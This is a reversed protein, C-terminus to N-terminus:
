GPVAQRNRVEKITDQYRGEAVQLASTAADLEARSSSGNGSCSWAIAAGGHKMSCPVHSACWHRTSPTLVIMPAMQPCVLGPGLKNYRPEAQRLRLRFDTPDLQAIMQGKRVRSGLDVAIGSLRGAVKFSLIVSGRRGTHRHRHHGTPVIDQVATDCM